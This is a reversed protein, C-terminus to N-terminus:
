AVEGYLVQNWDPIYYYIARSACMVWYLEGFRFKSFIIYGLYNLSYLSEEPWIQLIHYRSFKRSELLYYIMFTVCLQM